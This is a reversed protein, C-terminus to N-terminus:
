SSQPDTAGTLPLMASPSLNNRNPRFPHLHQPSTDPLFPPLIASNPSPIPFINYLCSYILM